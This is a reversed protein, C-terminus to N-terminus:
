ENSGRWQLGHEQLGNEIEVLKMSALSLAEAAEGAEAESATGNLRDIAANCEEQLAVWDDWSASDWIPCDGKRIRMGESYIDGDRYSYQGYQHDLRYEVRRILTGLLLSTVGLLKFDLDDLYFGQLLAFVGAVQMLLAAALIWRILSYDLTVKM